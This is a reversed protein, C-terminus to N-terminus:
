QIERMASLSTVSGNACVSSCLACFLAALRFHDSSLHQTSSSTNHYASLNNLRGTAVSQQTHIHAYARNTRTSSASNEKGSREEPHTEELRSGGSVDSLWPLTVNVGALPWLEGTHTSDWCHFRLCMCGCACSSSLSSQEPWSNTSLTM